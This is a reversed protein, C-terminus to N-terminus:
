DRRPLTAARCQLIYDSAPKPMNPRVPAGCFPSEVLPSPFFIVM